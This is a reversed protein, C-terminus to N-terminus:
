NASKIKFASYGDLGWDSSSQRQDDAYFAYDDVTVSIRVVKAGIPVYRRESEDWYATRYHTTRDGNHPIWRGQEDFYGFEGGAGHDDWKVVYWGDYLIFGLPCWDNDTGGEGVVLQAFIPIFNDGRRVYSYESPIYVAPIPPPGPHCGEEQATALEALFVIVSLSGKEINNSGGKNSKATKM